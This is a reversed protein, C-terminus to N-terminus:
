STKKAHGLTHLQDRVVERDDHSVREGKRHYFQQSGNGTITVLDDKGALSLAKRTGDKRDIVIFYDVGEKKGGKEVYGAIERAISMEDEEYPDTNSIVVFDADKGVITGMDKRKRKDRGGGEAGLLVIWRKITGEKKLESVTESLREMSLKEHAYDVIALFDQGEDIIEMRGPIAPLTRLAEKVLEEEVGCEKALILAPLVNYAFYSGLARVQYEVGEVEFSLLGGQQTIATARVDVGTGLGYTFKKKAKYALFHKAERDDGNVCMFPTIAFPLKKKEQRLSAFLVEKAKRYEEYSNNHSPLHEPSLNTFMVVDYFIGWHRNQKLGESTTEVIVHTVGAEKMERLLKQIVFRGPMTMHWPNLREKEGVKINATTILGTKYKKSLVTFLVNSTSTKGKTGTVGIVIMSKTPLAYFLAGLLATAGHYYLLIREPIFSRVRKKIAIFLKKM